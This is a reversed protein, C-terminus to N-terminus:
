LATIKNQLVMDLSEWTYQPQQRELFGKEAILHFIQKPYQSIKQKKNCLVKSLKRNFQSKWEYIKINDSCFM